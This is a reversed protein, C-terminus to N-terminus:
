WRESVVVSVALSADHEWTTHIIGNQSADLAWTNYIICNQMINHVVPDLMLQMKYDAGM